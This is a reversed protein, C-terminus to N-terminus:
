HFESSYLIKSSFYRKEFFEKLTLTSDGQRVTQAGFVKVVDKFPFWLTQIEERNLPSNTSVLSLGTIAVSLHNDKFIWVDTVLLKTTDISRLQLEDISRKFGTKEITGEEAM